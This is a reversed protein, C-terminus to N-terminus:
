FFGCRATYYVAHRSIRANFLFIWLARHVVGRSIRAFVNRPTSCRADRFARMSNFFVVVRPTTYRADRFAREIFFGVVRSTTCRTDRFVRMLYFFGM